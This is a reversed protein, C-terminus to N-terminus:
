TTSVTTALVAQQQRYAPRAMLVDLVDELTEIRIAELFEGEYGARKQQYRLDELRAAGAATLVRGQKGVKATLGLTDMKRLIRGLTPESVSDETGYLASWLTGSGVPGDDDNLLELVM